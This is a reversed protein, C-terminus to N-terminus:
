VQECECKLRHPNRLQVPAVGVRRRIGKLTAHVAENDTPDPASALKHAYKIAALRRGITSTARGSEAEHVLFAAVADPSAPLSRFGFQTCWVEFVKADNRYARVTAEAKSARQYARVLAVAEVPLGGANGALEVPLTEAM